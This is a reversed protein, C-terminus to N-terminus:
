ADTRVPLIIPMGAPWFHALSGNPYNILTDLGNEGLENSSRSLKMRQSVQLHM